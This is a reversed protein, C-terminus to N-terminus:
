PQVAGTVEDTPTTSLRFAQVDQQTNFVLEGTAVGDADFRHGAFVAGASTVARGSKM